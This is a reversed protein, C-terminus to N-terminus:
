KRRRKKKGSGEDLNFANVEKLMAGSSKSRVLGDANFDDNPRYIPSHDGFMFKQPMEEEDCLNEIDDM